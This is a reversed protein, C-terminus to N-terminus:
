HRLEIIKLFTTKIFALTICINDYLWQWMFTVM